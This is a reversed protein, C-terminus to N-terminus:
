LWRDSTQERGCTTDRPYRPGSWNLSVCSANTLVCREAILDSTV